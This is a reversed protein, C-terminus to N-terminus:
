KVNLEKFDHFIHSSSFIHKHTYKRNNLHKKFSYTEILFVYMVKEITFLLIQANIIDMPSIDYYNIEDAGGKLLQSVRKNGDILLHTKDALPLTTLYVPDNIKHSSKADEKTWTVTNVFHNASMKKVSLNSNKVHNKAGEIIFNFKFAIQGLNIGKVFVEFSPIGEKELNQIQTLTDMKANKFVNMWGDVWEDFYEFDFRNQLIYNRLEELNLDYKSLTSFDYAM